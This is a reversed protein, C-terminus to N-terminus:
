KLTFDFIIQLQKETVVNLAKQFQNLGFNMCTVKIKCKLNYNLAVFLFFSNILPWNLIYFKPM